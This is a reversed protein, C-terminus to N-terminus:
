KQKKNEPGEDEFNSPRKSATEEKRGNQLAELSQELREQLKRRLRKTYCDMYLRHMDTRVEMSMEVYMEHGFFILLDDLKHPQPIDLASAMMIEYSSLPLELSNM